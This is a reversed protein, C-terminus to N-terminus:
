ASAARDYVDVSLVNDDEIRPFLEIEGPGESGYAHEVVNVLAEGVATLVDETLDPDIDLELLKGDPLD